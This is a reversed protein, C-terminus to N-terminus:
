NDVGDGEEKPEYACGDKGADKPYVCQLLAYCYYLAGCAAVGRFESHKCTDCSKTESIPLQSVAQAKRNMPENM